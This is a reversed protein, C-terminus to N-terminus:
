NDNPDIEFHIKTGNIFTSPWLPVIDFVFLIDFYSFSYLHKNRLNRLFWPWFRSVAVNDNM